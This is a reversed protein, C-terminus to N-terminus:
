SFSILQTLCQIGKGVQMSKTLINAYRAQQGHPEAAENHVSTGLSGPFAQNADALLSDTPKM